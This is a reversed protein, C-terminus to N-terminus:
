LTKHFGDALFVNEGEVKLIVYLKGKDHGADSRALQGTMFKSADRKKAM